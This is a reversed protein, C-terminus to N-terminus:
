PNTRPRSPVACPSTNPVPPGGPGGRAGVFTIIRGVPPAEPNLYLGSIVEILHLPNLPAVLYESVGRRILERYLEVDNARGVVIVKTSPDCVQALRDVEDLAAKGQLRTEIILLNPSVNGNHHEVAAPLGGLQVMVNAKALRRDTAARELVASTDPFECFAHISIRPVPREHPAAGFAENEPSHLNTM